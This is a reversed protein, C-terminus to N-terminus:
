VIKLGLGTTCSPRVIRSSDMDYQCDRVGSVRTATLSSPIWKVMASSGNMRRSSRGYGYLMTLRLTMSLRTVGSSPM